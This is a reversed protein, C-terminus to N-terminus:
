RRPRKKTILKKGKKNTESYNLGENHSKRKWPTRDKMPLTTKRRRKVYAEDDDDDERMPNGYQDYDEVNAVGDMGVINRKGRRMVVRSPNSPDTIFFCQTVHKAHVWPENKAIVNVIASKANPISMTTYYRNEREVNKAWRVRFMTVNHLRSYNLEWIEEVRRYFRETSGNDDTMCEITVGSNQFDSKM